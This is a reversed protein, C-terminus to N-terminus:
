RTSSRMIVILSSPSALQSRIVFFVSALHCMFVRGFTSVRAVVVGPLSAMLPWLSSGFLLILWKSYVAVASRMQLLVQSGRDVVM